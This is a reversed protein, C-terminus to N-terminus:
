LVSFHIAGLYVPEGQTKEIFYKGGGCIQQLKREKQWPVSGDVWVEHVWNGAIDWFDSFVQYLKLNTKLFKFMNLILLVMLSMPISIYSDRVPDQLEVIKILGDEKKLDQHKKDGLEM